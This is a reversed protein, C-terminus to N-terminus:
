KNTYKRIDESALVAIIIALSDIVMCTSCIIKLIFIQVLILYLAILGGAGVALIYFRELWISKDRTLSFTFVLLFAFVGFWSLPIGLVHSYPTSWVETCTSGIICIDSSKSQEYVLYICVILNVALLFRIINQRKIMSLIANFLKLLKHFRAKSYNKCEKYLDKRQNSCIV